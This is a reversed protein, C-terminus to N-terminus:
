PLVTVAITGNSTATFVNAVSFSFTDPGVFGSAPTYTATGDPNLTVTGHAPQRTIRLSSPDVPAQPDSALALLNVTVPQNLPTVAVATAVMPGPGPHIGTLTAGTLDTASDATASTVNANTLNAGALNTGDLDANTFNVGTLNADTLFTGTLNANTFDIGQLDAGTLDLGSLNAHNQGKALVNVTITGTACNAANDCLRYGVSDTGHYGHSPTYTIAGDPGVSATGNGPASTVTVSVPDVDGGNERQVAVAVPEDQVGYVTRDLSGLTPTTASTGVPASSGYANGATVVFTYATGASLGHV